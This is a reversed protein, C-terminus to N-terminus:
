KMRNKMFIMLLMDVPKKKNTNNKKRTYSIEETKIEAEARAEIDLGLEM